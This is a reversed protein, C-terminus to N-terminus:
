KRRIILPESQRRMARRNKWLRYFYEGGIVFAVIAFGAILGIGDPGM